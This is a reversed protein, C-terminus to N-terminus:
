HCLSGEDSTHEFFQSLHLRAPMNVEKDFRRDTVPLATSTRHVFIRNNLEFRWFVAISPILASAPTADDACKSRERCAM